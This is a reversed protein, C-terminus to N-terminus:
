PVVKTLQVRPKAKTLNTIVACGQPNLLEVAAETTISGGQADIGDDGEFSGGVGFNEQKTQRGDLYALRVAPADVVVCMGEAGIGNFLPHERLMVRGKFFKFETFVQGYAAEPMSMTVEGYNRGIDQLVRMATADCYAIRTNQDSMDSSSSFAPTLMDVLDDYSIGNPDTSISVNLPAHERVADIIGQTAHLPQGSETGMFPQGLFMASEIDISHFNMCDWRNEAINSYGQEAYSARATDTLAWSNRWIQTFNAVYVAQVSRPIPRASGERHSNGVMLLKTGNTMAAAAIRGYGRQMTLTTSNTVELVRVNEGTLPNFFVMTPVIGTTDAVTFTQVTGNAIAATLVLSAFVMTKSFYGHTSSKAKSPKALATMAFLPASGNPARRLITGAFSKANLEAPNATANFLGAYISM